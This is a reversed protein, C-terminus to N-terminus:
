QILRILTCAFIFSKLNFSIRLMKLPTTKENTNISSAKARGNSLFSVIIFAGFFKSSFTDWDKFFYDTLSNKLDILKLTKYASEPNLRITCSELVEVCLSLYELDDKKLLENLIKM